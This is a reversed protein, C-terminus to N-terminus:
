KYEGEELGVDCRLHPWTFTLPLVVGSHHMEDTTLHRLSDKDGFVVGLCHFYTGDQSLTKLCHTVKLKALVLTLCFSLTAVFNPKLSPKFGLLEALVSTLFYSM